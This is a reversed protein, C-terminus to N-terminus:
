RLGLRRLDDRPEDFSCSGFSLVRQQRAYEIEGLTAEADAWAFTEDTFEFQRADQEEVIGLIDHFELPLASALIGAGFVNLFGHVFTQVGPDYHRVAQHLGATFKLPVGHDRCQQIVFAVQAASPFAAAELGGCRLKFGARGGHERDYAALAEVLALVIPKWDEGVALSAEWFTPVRVAGVALLLHVSDLFEHIAGPDPAQGLEGPLRLEFAEICTGRAALAGAVNAGATKLGQEVDHRRTTYLARMRRLSTEDVELLQGVTRIGCEGLVSRARDSFPLESLPRDPDASRPPSSGASESRFAIIRILDGVLSRRFADASEAGTALVSLRCPSSVFLSDRYGDLQPLNGAPCLFRGLMWAEPEDRYRAYNRVAEDLELKAPPFLGAYDIIENLFARRSARM